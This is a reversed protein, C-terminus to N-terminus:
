IAMFQLKIFYIESRSALRIPPGWTGYGSSVLFNTSDIKQYGRSIQFVKSTIYNFPWLQGHHTHGSLLLDIRNAISESLNFPQHDLVIIPLEPDIGRVLEELTHRGTGGAYRRGDRDDRGVIWVGNPLQLTTDRLVIIGHDQLYKVAKAVGGIFEHNGAVTYKGLPAKLEELGRGLNYHIVPTLDEDLLDGGFLIVDPQKVNIVEVLRQLQRQGVLSGLHIDSAYAITMAEVEAKKNIDIELTKIQTHTANWRGIILVITVIIIAGIGTIFKLQQLNQRLVVPILPIFHNILRFLDIMIVILLFYVMAGLWYAGLWELARSVIGNSFREVIRGLIYASALIIFVITYILRFTPYDTFAKIGHWFIYYNVLFLILLVISFFIIFASIKM